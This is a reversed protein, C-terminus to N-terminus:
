PSTGVRSISAVNTWTGMLQARTKITVRASDGASLGDLQCIVTGGAHTCAGNFTASSLFAAGAPLLNTLVLGTVRAPGPNTVTVLYDLEGGVLAVDPSDAVTVGLDNRTMVAIENARGSHGATDRVKLTM